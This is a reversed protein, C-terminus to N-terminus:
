LLVLITGTLLLGYCLLVWRSFSEFERIFLFSLLLVWLPVTRAMLSVIIVSAYSLSLYKLMQASNVILGNFLFWRFSKVDLHLFEQRTARRLLVTSIVVTAASYAVLAGAISSGGHQLGLKIFIPSSGWFVAAGAGYLLGMLLNRQGFGTEESNARAPISERAQEKVALLTPGALSFLTGVAMVLTFIERLVSIALMLSVVTSLGIVIQSRTAGVLQVCKYACSRGLAFHVVGSAAFFIFSQWSFNFLKSIDGTVLAIILFFIPGMFVSTLTALTSSARLVGMRLTM